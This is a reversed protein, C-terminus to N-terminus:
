PKLVITYDGKSRGSGTTINFPITTLESLINGHYFYHASYPEEYLGIGNFIKQQLDVSSNILRKIEFCSHAKIQKCLQQNLIFMKDGKTIKNFFETMKDITTKWGKILEINKDLETDRMCYLSAGAGLEYSNFLKKFSNPGLKLIQFSKSTVMKVSVGSYPIKTYNINKLELIDESLYYENNILLDQIDSDIKALYCDSRTFVKKGSLISFQKTTIRIM